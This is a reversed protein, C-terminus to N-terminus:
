RGAGALSETLADDEPDVLLCIFSRDGSGWSEESPSIMQGFIESTAYPAGVYPEFEPECVEVFIAELESDPPFSGDGERTAIAFVEYQHAETCPVGDVESIEDDAAANFCDGERLEDVSVNGASELSGAEDRRASTLYGVLLVVVIAPVWWFRIWRRWGAPEEDSANVTGGEPAWTAQDTPTPESGRILGCRQCAEDTDNNDSFCRKCVWRESM